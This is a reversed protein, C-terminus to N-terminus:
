RRLTTTGVNGSPLPAPYAMNGTDTPTRSGGVTTTSVTGQPLPAPYTVSGTDPRRQSQPGTSTALNGQPVPAPYAMNGTDRPSPANCASLALIAALSTAAAFATKM